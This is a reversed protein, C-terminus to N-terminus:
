RLAGPNPATGYTIMYNYAFDSDTKYEIRAWNQIETNNGGRKFLSVWGEFFKM